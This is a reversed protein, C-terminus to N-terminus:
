FSGQELRAMRLADAFAGNRFVDARKLGEPKFRFRNYLRIAPANDAIVTLSLRKLNLWNDAIDLLAALLASGIGRGSYADHVALLQIDGCHARRGKAPQLLAIGAVAGDAVAVLSKAPDDPAALPRNEAPTTFPARLTGHRVIPQNMLATIGDLDEPEAARLQFPGAPAPPPPPPYPSSDAPLDGHLRAMGFSSAFAGARFADERLTAEVAFGFKKYLALAPANDTYVELELRRLGLWNDTLDLLARFLATGVGRGQWADHVMVGVTAAHARRAPRHAGLFVQGVIVGDVCAVLLAAPPPAAARRKRWLEVAEFPIALTGWRAQAMNRIGTVAPLDDDRMARITINPAQDHTM